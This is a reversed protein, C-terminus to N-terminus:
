GSLIYRLMTWIVVVARRSMAMRTHHSLLPSPFCGCGTSDFPVIVHGGRAWDEFVSMGLRFVVCFSISSPAFTSFGV